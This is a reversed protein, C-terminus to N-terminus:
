MFPLMQVPNVREVVQLYQYVRLNKSIPVDCVMGLEDQLELFGITGVPSTFTLDRNSVFFDEFSLERNLLELEFLFGKTVRALHHLVTNGQSLRAATKFRHTLGLRIEVHQLLRLQVSSAGGIILKVTQGLGHMAESLDLLRSALPLLVRDAHQGFRRFVVVLRNRGQSHRRVRGLPKIVLFYVLFGLLTPVLM